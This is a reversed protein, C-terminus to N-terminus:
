LTTQPHPPHASTRALLLPRLAGALYFSGAIVIQDGPQSQALARGLAAEPDAVFPLDDREPTTRQGSNANTLIVRAAHPELVTLTEAGLKKPLAGFLLTFPWRTHELLAAAASPNHAGDLLVDRGEIFFHEARAPLRAALGDQVAGEPVGCLRLAAAALQANHSQTTTLGDTEINFIPDGTERVYLSSRHSAAVRRVVELGEGTAGTVTWTGERIAKTKDTAIDRLTPGLTDLHDRGISTLVVGTVNELARTADHRAGVGAEIVAVEVGERAFHHLALALTLEFFAPAPELPPLGRVFELVTADPIWAGNVAIRERFDVVHPSIFRGTRQGAATLGAAIMASVSGKGNTGVVHVVRPPSTLELQAMLNVMRRVSRPAGNRTQAFLWELAAPYNSPPQEPM